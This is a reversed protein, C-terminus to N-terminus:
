LSYDADLSIYAYIRAIRYNIGRHELKELGKSHSM